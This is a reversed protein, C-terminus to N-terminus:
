ECRYRAWTSCSPAPRAPDRRGDGMGDADRVARRPATTSPGGAIPTDVTIRSTAAFMPAVPPRAHPDHVQGVVAVGREVAVVGGHQEDVVRMEGGTSLPVFQAVTREAHRHHEAHAAAGGVVRESPEPPAARDIVVVEPREGGGLHGRESGSQHIAVHM